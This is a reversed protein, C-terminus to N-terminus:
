SVPKCEVVTGRDICSMSAGRKLGEGNVGHAQEQKKQKHGRWRTHAKWLSSCIEHWGCRAILGNGHPHSSLPLARDRLLLLFHAEIM